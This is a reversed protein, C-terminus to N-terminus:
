LEKGKWNRDHWMVGSGKETMDFLEGMRKVKKQWTLYSSWEKKRKHWMVVSKKERDHWIARETMGYLEVGESETIDHLKLWLWLDDFFHKVAFRFIQSPINTVKRLTMWEKRWAAWNKGEAFVYNLELEQWAMNKETMDRLETEGKKRVICLENTKKETM